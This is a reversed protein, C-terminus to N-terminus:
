LKDKQKKWWDDLYIFKHPRHTKSFRHPKFIDKPKPYLYKVDGFPCDSQMPKGDWPSRFCESCIIKCHPPFRAYWAKIEEPTTPSM